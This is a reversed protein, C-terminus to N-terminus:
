GVGAIGRIIAAPLPPDIASVLEPAASIELAPRPPYEAVLAATSESVLVRAQSGASCKMRTFAIQGVATSVGIIWFSASYREGRRHDAPV